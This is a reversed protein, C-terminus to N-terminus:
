IRVNERHAKRIEEPTKARKIQEHKEEVEKKIRRVEQWDKFWAIIKAGLKEILPLIVLSLFSNLLKSLIAQM